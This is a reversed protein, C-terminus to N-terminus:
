PTWPPPALGLAGPPEEVREFRQAAATRVDRTAVRRRMRGGRLAECAPVPFASTSASPGWPAAERRDRRISKAVQVDSLDVDRTIARVTMDSPSSSGWQPTTNLRRCRPRCVRRSM